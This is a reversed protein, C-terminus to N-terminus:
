RMLIILVIVLVMMVVGVVLGIKLKRLQKEIEATQEQDSDSPANHESDSLLAAEYIRRCETSRYVLPKGNVKKIKRRLMQLFTLGNRQYFGSLIILGSFPSAAYVSIFMSWGLIKYFFFITGVGVAAAVVIYISKKWDFGVIVDEKYSEIDHCMEVTLGMNAGIRNEPRM